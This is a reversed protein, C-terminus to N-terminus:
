VTDYAASFLETKLHANFTTITAYGKAIKTSPYIGLFPTLLLFNLQLHHFLRPGLCHLGNLGFDM